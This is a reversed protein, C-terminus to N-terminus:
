KCIYFKYVSILTLIVMIFLLITKTTTIYNWKPDKM